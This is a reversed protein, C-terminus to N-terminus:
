AALLLALVTVAWVVVWPWWVSWWLSDAVV